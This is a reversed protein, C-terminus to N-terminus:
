GKWSTCVTRTRLLDVNGNVKGVALTRSTGDKGVPGWEIQKVGLDFSDDMDSSGSYTRFLQGDATFILVKTGSSAADWVAIWRGDPSWKLGQADNTSLVVRTVLNYSQPDHITLLDSTDPKLLIAFHKTQPRYGFGLHHASKPSKIMSSRGTDLFHITTKTNWTHFVLVENEDAGFEINLTGPELNEIEAFLKLEELQWISIRSENSSLLRRDKSSGTSNQTPSFKFSKVSTEMSKATQIEKHESALNSYVALDKGHVHAAFLGDNSLSLVLPASNSNANPLRDQLFSHVGPELRPM